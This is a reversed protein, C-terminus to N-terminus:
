PVKAQTVLAVGSSLTTPMMCFVALGVQFEKPEFPIQMPIMGFFPTIVLISCLGLLAGQWAGMAEQIDSTSLTVGSIIFIVCVLLSSFFSWGEVDVGGLEKGPAPWALGIIFATAFGLPLFNKLAFAQVASCRESCSTEVSINNDEM